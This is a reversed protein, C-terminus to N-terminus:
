EGKLDPKYFTEVVLKYLNEEDPYFEAYKEGAVTKGKISSYNLMDNTRNKLVCKTLYSIDAISLNTVSNKSVKNYLKIPTSIDQKTKQVVTKFFASMYKKQRAMRVNNADISSKDRARIYRLAYAGKLTASEGKKIFMDYLKTDEDVTVTVGGITDNLVKISDIDIAIYSNIPMGYLLRSVSDVTNECSKERGDGYAYSLCIQNKEVGLYQGGSSYMDIDIMTDRSIPIANLEGTETDIVVLLLVDAQGNKGHIQSANSSINQKDVGILLVSTLKDNFVYKKDNYVLIKGNNSLNGSLNEPMTINTQQNNLLNNKGIKFLLALVICIILVIAIIVCLITILIRKKNLKKFM